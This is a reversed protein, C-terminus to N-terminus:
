ALAEDVKQAADFWLRTEERSVVRLVWIGFPILIFTTCCALALVMLVYRAWSRRPLFRLLLVACWAVVVVGVMRVITWWEGETKLLMMVVVVSIMATLVAALGLIMRHLSRLAPPLVPLVLRLDFTPPIQRMRLAYEDRARRDSTMMPAPQSM